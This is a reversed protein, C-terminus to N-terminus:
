KLIQNRVPQKNRNNRNRNRMSNSVVDSMPPLPLPYNRHSNYRSPAVNSAQINQGRRDGRDSSYYFNKTDSTKSAHLISFNM